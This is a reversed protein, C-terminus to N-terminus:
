SLFNAVGVRWRSSWRCGAFILRASMNLVWLPVYTWAYTCLCRYDLSKRTTNQPWLARLGVTPTLEPHSIQGGWFCAFSALGFMKQQNQIYLWLKLLFSSFRSVTVDASMVSKSTNSRGADAPQSNYFISPFFPSNGFHFQTGDM